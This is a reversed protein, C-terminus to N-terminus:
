AGAFDGGLFVQDVANAGDAVTCFLLRRGGKKQLVELLAKFNNEKLFEPLFGEQGVNVVLYTVSSHDESVYGGVM